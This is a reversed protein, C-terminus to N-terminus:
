QNLMVYSFIICLCVNSIEILLSIGIHNIELSSFPRGIIIMSGTIRKECYFYMGIRSVSQCKVFYIRYFINESSLISHKPRAIRIQHIKSLQNEASLSHVDIASVM